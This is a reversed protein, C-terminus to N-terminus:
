GWLINWEVQMGGRTCLGQIRSWGGAGDLTPNEEALAMVEVRDGEAAEESTGVEGM